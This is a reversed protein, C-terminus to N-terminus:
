ARMENPRQAAPHYRLHPRKIPESQSLWWGVEKKATRREKEFDPDLTDVQEAFPSDAPM